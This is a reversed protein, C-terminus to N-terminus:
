HFPLTNPAPTEWDHTKFVREVRHSVYFYLLWVFLGILRTANVRISKPFYYVDLWVSISSVIAAVLLLLRIREVSLWDRRRLLQISAIVVALLAFFRPFVALALVLHNVTEHGFSPLFVRPHFAIDYLYVFAIAFEWYYFYLLFGGISHKRRVISVVTAIISAPLLIANLPNALVGSPVSSFALM